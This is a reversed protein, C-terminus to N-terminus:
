KNKLSYCCVNEGLLKKPNNYDCQYYKIAKDVMCNKNKFLEIEELTLKYLSVFRSMRLESLNLAYEIVEERSLFKIIEIDSCSYMDYYENYDDFGTVITGSGIVSAILVDRVAGKGPNGSYRITDELNKTFHFGNGHPGFKIDGNCHYKFGEIFKKGFYNTKDLNFSKFGQIPGFQKNRNNNNSM